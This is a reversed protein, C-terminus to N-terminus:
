NYLFFIDLVWETFSREEARAADALTRWWRCGRFLLMVAPDTAEQWYQAAADAQDEELAAGGNSAVCGNSAAYAAERLLRM